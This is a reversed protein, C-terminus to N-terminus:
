GIDKSVCHTQRLHDARGHLGLLSREGGKEKILNEIRAVEIIDTGVM